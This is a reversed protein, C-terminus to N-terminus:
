VHGNSADEQGIQWLHDPWIGDHECYHQMDSHSINWLNTADTGHRTHNTNQKEGTCEQNQEDTLSFHHLRRRTSDVENWSFEQTTTCIWDQQISWLHRNTTEMTKQTHEDEWCWHPEVIKHGHALTCGNTCDCDSNWFHSRVSSTNQLTSISWRVHSHISQREEM